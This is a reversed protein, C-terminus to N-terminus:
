FFFWSRTQVTATQVDEKKKTDKYEAYAKNCLAEYKSVELILQEKTTTDAM